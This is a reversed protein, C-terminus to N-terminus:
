SLRAELTKCCKRLMTEIDGDMRTGAGGWVLLHPLDRLGNDGVEVVEQFGFM